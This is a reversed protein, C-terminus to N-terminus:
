ILKYIPQNRNRINKLMKKWRHRNISKEFQNPASGSVHPHGVQCLSTIYPEPDRLQNWNHDKPDPLDWILM